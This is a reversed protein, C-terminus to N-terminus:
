GVRRRRRAHGGSNREESRVRGAQRAHPECHARRLRTKELRGGADPRRRGIWDCRHADHPVTHPSRHSTKVVWKPPFAFLAFVAFFSNTCSSNKALEAPKANQESTAFACM